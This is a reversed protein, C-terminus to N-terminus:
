QWELDSRKHSSHRKPPEKIGRLKYVCNDVFEGIRKVMVERTILHAGGRARAKARDRICM